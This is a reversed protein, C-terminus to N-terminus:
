TENPDNPTQPYILTYIIRLKNCKNFHHLSARTRNIPLYPNQNSTTFRSDVNVYSSLVTWSSVAPLWPFTASSVKTSGVGLLTTGDSPFCCLSIQIDVLFLFGGSFSLLSKTYILITSTGELISVFCTCGDL